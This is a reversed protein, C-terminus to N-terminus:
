QIIPNISQHRMRDPQVRVAAAHAVPKDKSSHSLFVDFQSENAMGVASKGQFQWMGPMRCNLHRRALLNQNCARRARLSAGQRGPSAVLGKSRM